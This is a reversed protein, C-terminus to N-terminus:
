PYKVTAPRLVVGNVGSGRGQAPSLLALNLGRVEAGLAGNLRNIQVDNTM